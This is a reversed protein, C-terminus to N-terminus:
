VRVQGVDLVVDGPQLQLLGITQRRLDMTFQASDDYGKARQQYKQISAQNLASGNSM